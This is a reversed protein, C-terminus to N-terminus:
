DEASLGDYKEALLKDIEVVKEMIERALVKRSYAIPDKQDVVIM